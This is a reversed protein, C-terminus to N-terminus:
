RKSSKTLKMGQDAVCKGSTHARMESYTVVLPEKLPLSIEFILM